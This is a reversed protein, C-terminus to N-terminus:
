SALWPTIDQKSGFVRKPRIPNITGATIRKMGTQFLDKAFAKAEEETSFSKTRRRYHGVGSKSATEYAVFWTYKMAAREEAHASVGCYRRLDDSQSGQM